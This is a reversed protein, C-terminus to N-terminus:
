DCVIRNTLYTSEFFEPSEYEGDILTCIEKEIIKINDRVDYKTEDKGVDYGFYGIGFIIGAILFIIMILGCVPVYRKSKDDAYYKELEEKSKNKAENMVSDYNYTM